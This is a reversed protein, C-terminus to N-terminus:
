LNSTPPPSFFDTFFSFLLQDTEVLTVGYINKTQGKFKAPQSQNARSVTSQSQNSLVQYVQSWATPVSTNNKCNQTKLGHSVIETVRKWKVQRNILLFCKKHILRFHPTKDM